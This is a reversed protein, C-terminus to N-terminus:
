TYWAARSKHVLAGIRGALELSFTERLMVKDWAMVSRYSAVWSLWM